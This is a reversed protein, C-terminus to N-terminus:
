VALITVEPCLLRILDYAADRQVLRVLLAARNRGLLTLSRTLAVSSAFQTFTCRYRRKKPALMIADLESVVLGFDMESPNM